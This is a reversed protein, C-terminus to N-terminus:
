LSPPNEEVDTQWVEYGRLRHKNLFFYILGFVLGLAFGIFHTRYSVQAEFTSPMLTALAVGVARLLRQSWRHNRAILVFLTLWFGALVYALGSAGLLRVEPPYTALSVANVLGASLFTLTPFIWWGFYGSIFYGLVAIMLANSLLHQLDSHILATTWLRWYEHSNWIQSPSAILLTGWGNWNQWYIQTFVIMVSIFFLVASQGRPSPKLSLFTRLLKPSTPRLPEIM